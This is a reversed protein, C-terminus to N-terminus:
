WWMLCLKYDHIPDYEEIPEHMLHLLEHHLISRGCEDRLDPKDEIFFIGINPYVCGSTNEGCITDIEGIAVFVLWYENCDTYPKVEILSCIFLLDAQEKDVDFLNMALIIIIGGAIVSLM